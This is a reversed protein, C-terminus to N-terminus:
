MNKRYFIGDAIISKMLPTDMSMFTFRARLSVNWEKPYLKTVRRMNNPTLSNPHCLVTLGKRKITIDFIIKDNCRIICKKDTKFNVVISDDNYSNIISLFKQILMEGTVYEKPVTEKCDIETEVINVEPKEDAPELVWWKDFINHTFSKIGVNEIDINVIEEDSSVVIGRQLNRRNYVKLGQPVERM